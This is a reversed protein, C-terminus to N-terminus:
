RVEFLYEILEVTDLPKNEKLPPKFKISRAAAISQETLGNPLAQIPVVFGITGDAKLEVALRVIGSTGSQRAQDTYRPRPRETIEARYESGSLDDKKRVKGKQFANVAKNPKGFKHLSAGLYMWSIYDKKDLEKAESFSLSAKEFDGSLYFALGEDRKSQALMSGICLVVVGISLFFRKAKM